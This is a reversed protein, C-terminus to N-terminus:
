AHFLQLPPSIPDLMQNVVWDASSSSGSVLPGRSPRVMGHFIVQCSDDLGNIARLEELGIDSGGALAFHVYSRLEAAMQCAMPLLVAASRLSAAAFLVNKNM